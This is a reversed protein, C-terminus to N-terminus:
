ASRANELDFDTSETDAWVVDPSYNMVRARPLSMIAETGVGLQSKIVFKGDHMGVLAQVISLGLGTGPEASKIAHSGQGFAELVTPIEDEPIGPGTDTISVYQGDDSTRGVKIHVEGGVPTFKVANSILNLVVQRLAREDAWVRPMDPELTHHLMINKANARVTMMSGCEDVVEELYLSEEQLEHRGAEIRSLDLIENILNLCISAPAM